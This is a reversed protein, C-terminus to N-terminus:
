QHVIHGDFVSETLYVPTTIYQNNHSFGTLRCFKFVFARLPKM